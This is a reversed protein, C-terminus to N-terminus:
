TYNPNVIWWNFPQTDLVNSSTVTFSNATVASVTLFGKNAPVGGDRPSVFLFANPDIAQTTVTAVGAVLDVAGICPSAFGSPAINIADCTVLGTTVQGVLKQIPVGLITEPIEVQNITTTQAPTGTGVVANETALLYPSQVADGYVQCFTDINGNIIQAAM